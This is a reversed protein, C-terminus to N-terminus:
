PENDSVGVDFGSNDEQVHPDRDWWMTNYTVWCEVKIGEKASGVQGDLDGMIDNITTQDGVENDLMVGIQLTQRRAPKTIVSALDSSGIYDPDANFLIKHKHELIRPFFTKRITVSRGHSCRKHIYHRDKLEQVTEPHIDTSAEDFGIGHVWLILPRISTDQMSMSKNTLKVTVTASYVRFKKYFHAIEEVWRAQLAADSTAWTPYGSPSNAGTFSSSFPDHPCNLDFKAVKSFRQFVGTSSEFNPYQWMQYLKHKVLARNTLFTSGYRRSSARGTGRFGRM